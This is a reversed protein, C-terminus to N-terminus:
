ARGSTALRAMTRETFREMRADRSRGHAPDDLFRALADTDAVSDPAVLRLLCLYSLAHSGSLDLADALPHEQRVRSALDAVSPREM